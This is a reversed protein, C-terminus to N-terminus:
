DKEQQYEMIGAYKISPVVSNIRKLSFLHKGECLVDQNSNGRGRIRGTGAWKGEWGSGRGKQRENPFWLKRLSLLLLIFYSLFGAPQLQVICVFLFSLAWSSLFSLGSTQMNM